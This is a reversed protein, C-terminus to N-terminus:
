RGRIQVLGHDMHALFEVFCCLAWLVRNHPGAGLMSAIPWVSNASHSDIDLVDFDRVHASVWPVSM